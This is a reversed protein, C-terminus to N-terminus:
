GPALPPPSSHTMLRDVELITRGGLERGEGLYQHRAPLDSDFEERNGNEHDDGVNDDSDSSDDVQYHQGLVGLLGGIGMRPQLPVEEDNIDDESDSVAEDDSIHFGNPVRLINQEIVQNDGIVPVHIDFEEEIEALDADDGAGSNDQDNVEEVDESDM